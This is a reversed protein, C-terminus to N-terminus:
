AKKDNAPTGYQGIVVCPATLVVHHILHIRLTVFFIAFDFHQINVPTPGSKQFIVNQRENSFLLGYIFHEDTMVIAQFRSSSSVILFKYNKEFRRM